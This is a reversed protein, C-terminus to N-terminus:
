STREYPQPLHRDRDYPPDEHAPMVIDPFRAVWDQRWEDDAYYKLFLHTDDESWGGLLDVHWASDHDDPLLPVEERLVHHYLHAYLERESLHDTQSLFVRIRALAGILEWLKATLKRDEMAEPPPLELGAETLRQFETTSPANEFDVVRQWFQETQDPSLADSEWAILKGGAAKKARQKLRQIRDKQDKGCDRGPRNAKM